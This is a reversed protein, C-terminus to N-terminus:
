TLSNCKVHLIFSLFKQECNDKYSKKKKSLHRNETSDFNTCRASNMKQQCLTQVSRAKTSQEQGRYSYSNIQKIESVFGYINYLLHHSGLPLM